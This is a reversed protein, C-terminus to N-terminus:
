QAVGAAAPNNTDAGAPPDVPLDGAPVARITTLTGNTIGELPTVPNGEAGQTAPTGPWPMIGIDAKKVIIQKLRRAAYPTCVKADVIFHDAKETYNLVKVGLKKGSTDASLLFAKIRIATLINM